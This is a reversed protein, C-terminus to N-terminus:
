RLFNRMFGCFGHRGGQRQWKEVSRKIRKLCAVIEENELTCRSRQGIGTRIPSAAADWAFTACRKPLNMADFVPDKLDPANGKNYFRILTDLAKLTDWDTMAPDADYSQLLAFGINQLVDLYQDEFSINM